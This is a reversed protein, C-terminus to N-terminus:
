NLRKQSQRVLALSVAAAVAANLSPLQGTTPLRLLWDCKKETLQRIGKEENGIILVLPADLRATDFDEKANESLGLVWFGKEKALELSQALNTVRCIPVFLFGGASIRAAVSTLPSSRHETVVVASVGFAAASRLVSGLNQPDTVEDLFLLIPYQGNETDIGSLLEEFDKYQPDPIQAFVGQSSALESENGGNKKFEREFAAKEKLSYTQTFIKQERALSTIERSRVPDDRELIHVSHATSKNSLLSHVAHFGYIIM